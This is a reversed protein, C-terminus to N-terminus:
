GRVTFGADVIREAISREDVTAPDFAVDVTGKKFDVDARRVGDHQQLTHELRKVCSSCHIGKVQFTVQEM